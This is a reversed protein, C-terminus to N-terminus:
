KEREKERKERRRAHFIVLHDPPPLFLLRGILRWGGVVVIALFLAGMRSSPTNEKSRSAGAEEREERRPEGCFGSLWEGCIVM